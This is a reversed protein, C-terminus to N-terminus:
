TTFGCARSMSLTSSLGRGEQSTPISLNPLRFQGSRPDFFLTQPNSNEDIGIVCVRHSSHGGGEQSTPISWNPPRTNTNPPRFKWRGGGGEQSISALSIAIARCKNLNVRVISLISSHRGKEQFSISKTSPRINVLARGGGADIANNKEPQSDKRSECDALHVSSLRSHSWAVITLDKLDRLDKM